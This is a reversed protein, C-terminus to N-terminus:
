IHILSLIDEATQLLKIEAKLAPFTIAKQLCALHHQPGRMKEKLRDHSRLFTYVDEEAALEPLDTTKLAERDMKLQERSENEADRVYRSAQETKAAIDLELDELYIVQSTDYPNTINFDAAVFEPCKESIRSIAKFLDRILNHRARVQDPKDALKLIPMCYGVEGQVLDFSGYGLKMIRLM